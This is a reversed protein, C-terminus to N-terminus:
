PYKKAITDINANFIAVGQANSIFGIEVLYNQIDSMHTFDIATKCILEKTKKNM